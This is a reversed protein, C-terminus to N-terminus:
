RFMGNQMGSMNELYIILVMLLKLCRHLIKRMVHFILISVNSHEDIVRQYILHIITESRCQSLYNRAIDVEKVICFILFFQSPMESITKFDDTKSRKPGNKQTKEPRYIWFRFPSYTRNLADHPQQQVRIVLMFDIFYPCSKELLIWFRGFRAFKAGKKPGLDPVLNKRSTQIEGFSACQPGRNVHLFDSFVLCAKRLFDMKLFRARQNALLM